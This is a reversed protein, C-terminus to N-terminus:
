FPWVADILRAGWGPNQRDDIVGTGTYIIKADSIYTSLIINDPSIDTSRIIGALAIYQQENNITIERKGFIKLNGNPFVETVRATISAALAGSRNTTGAGKFTNNTTGSVSGFPTFGGNKPFSTSNELGLLNTLSASISSSRSTNTDAANSASSSEVISITVIDGIRRAKPNIFLECLHGNEQWLSGEYKEVSENPVECIIDDDITLPKMEKKGTICGFCNLMLLTIIFINAILLKSSNSRNFIM